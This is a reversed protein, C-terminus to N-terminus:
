DKGGFEGFGFSEKAPHPFGLDVGDDNLIQPQNSQGPLDAWLHFNMGGGLHGKGGGFSDGKGTALADGKGNKGTFKGEAFQSFKRSRAIGGAKGQFNKDVSGEADGVRALAEGTFDETASAGVASLAGL